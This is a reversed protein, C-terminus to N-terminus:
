KWDFEARGPDGLFPGLHAAAPKTETFTNGCRNCTIEKIYEGLRYEYPDRSEIINGCSGCRHYKLSLDWTHAGKQKKLVKNRQFFNLFSLQL